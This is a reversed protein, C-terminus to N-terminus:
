GPLSPALGSSCEPALSVGSVNQGATGALRLTGSAFGRGKGLVEGLDMQGRGWGVPPSRLSRGTLTAGGRSPSSGALM